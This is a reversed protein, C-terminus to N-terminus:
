PICVETLRSFCGLMSTSLHFPRLPLWALFLLHRLRLYVNMVEQVQRDKRHLRMMEQLFDISVTFRVNTLYLMHTPFPRSAERRYRVAPKHSRPSLFGAAQAHRPPPSWLRRFCCWALHYGPGILCITQASMVSQGTEGACFRPRRLRRLRVGSLM